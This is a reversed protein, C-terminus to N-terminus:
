KPKRVKRGVSIYRFGAEAMDRPDYINRLDIVLPTAMAQRLLGLDLKRFQNWETMIALADAEKAAEFPGDCLEVQPLIKRAAETAVPDFAQVRAGRSLLGEVIAVAPSDRLDDTDPKFSLGLVGICRNALGGVAEEIKGVMRERTHANVELVSEVIRFTLGNDRAIRALAATDKPFCSGGFGPGAQLFRPGIRDDLGMGKAVVEVDAGIRECLEAVENIFSIKTALFSNSAHKILEASEVDTTVFPV